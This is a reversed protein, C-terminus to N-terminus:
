STPRQTNSHAKQAEEAAQRLTATFGADQQIQQNFWQNFADNQRAQRMMALFEPLEKKVEEDSAPKVSQPCLVFGGDHTPVFPSVKGLETSFGAQKLYNLDVRDALEAPLKRTSVSFPPLSESKLGADAAAGAFSKGPPLGNTLSNAFAVGAQRAAVAAMGNRYDATVKAEISKLPPIESPIVKNYALVYSGDEAGVAGSIPEEPTLAFAAKLFDPKVEWGTPGEEQDFPETTGVPLGREAALMHLNTANRPEKNYVDVAFQSAERYALFMAENRLFEERLKDKAEEPTKGLAAANTGYKRYEEDVIATLNTLKAKAEALYNTVNFKVYNAQVRTPIAYTAQRNSYYQSLAEPTVTVHSLYNSASFYVMSSSLEEHEKRYMTEAEQPTVLKGSLGAVAALQMFAVRSHGFREFDDLNLGHPKLLKEELEDLSGLHLMNLVQRAFDAVSETSVQIGLEKEKQAMLLRFYTERQIDWDTRTSRPDGPWEGTNFFSELVYERRAKNFEEPSIDEGNLKGYSPTNGGRYGGGGMRSNSGWIFVFSFITLGVIVVLLWKQHKRITAFM